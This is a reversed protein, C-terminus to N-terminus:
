ADTEETFGLHQLSQRAADRVTSAGTRAALSSAQVGPLARHYPGGGSNDFSM